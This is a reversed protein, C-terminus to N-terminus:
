QECRQILHVTHAIQRSDSLTEWSENACALDCSIRETVDALGELDAPHPLQDYADQISALANATTTLKENVNDLRDSLQDALRQLLRLKQSKRNRMHTTWESILCLQHSPQLWGVSDTITVKLAVCPRIARPRNCSGKREKPILNTPHPIAKM